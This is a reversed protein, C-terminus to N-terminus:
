AIIIAPYKINMFFLYYVIQLNDLAMLFLSPNFIITGSVTYTLLIAVGLALILISM